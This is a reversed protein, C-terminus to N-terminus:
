VQAGNQPTKKAQELAMLTAEVPLMISAHRNRHAQAPELIAYEEFPAAPAGGEAKLFALLEQRLKELEGESRGIVNQAFIASSAQGLACANVTQSYESIKDDQLAISVEVESGCIPSRKKASAQPSEIPESLPNLTALNLIKQSYLEFLNESM